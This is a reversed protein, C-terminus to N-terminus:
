FSFRVQVQVSRPAQYDSAVGFGNGWPLARAPILNGNADFPLNTARVPDSPDTLNITANRGTITPHSGREIRHRGRRHRGDDRVDHRRRRHADDRKRMQAAATAAITLSLVAALAAIGARATRTKKTV